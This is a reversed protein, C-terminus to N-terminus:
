CSLVDSVVLEGIHLLSCLVFILLCLSGGRFLHTCFYIRGCHLDLNSACEGV